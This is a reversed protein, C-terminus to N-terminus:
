KRNTLGTGVRIYHIYQKQAGFWYSDFLDKTTADDYPVEEFYTNEQTGYIYIDQQASTIRQFITTDIGNGTDYGDQPTEWTQRYISLDTIYVKEISPM